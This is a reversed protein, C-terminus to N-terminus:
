AIRALTAQRGELLAVLLGGDRDVAAEGASVV